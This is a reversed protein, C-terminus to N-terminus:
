EVKDINNQEEEPKKGMMRDVIEGALTEFSKLRDKEEQTLQNGEMTAMGGEPIGVCRNFIRMECMPLVVARRHQQRGARPM